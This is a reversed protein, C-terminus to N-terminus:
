VTESHEMQVVPCTGQFCVHEAGCVSCICLGADLSVWAHDHGPYNPPVLFNRGKVSTYLQVLARQM